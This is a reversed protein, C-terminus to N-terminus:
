PRYYLLKYSAPLSCTTKKLIIQIQFLLSLSIRTEDSSETVLCKHTKLEFSQFTGDATLEDTFVTPGYIENAWRLKGIM